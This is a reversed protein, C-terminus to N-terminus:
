VGIFEQATSLSYIEITLQTNPYEQSTLEFQHWFFQWSLGELLSLYNLLEFYKGTLTLEIGHRYLVAQKNTATDAAQNVDDNQNEFLVGQPALARFSVISIGPQQQLLDQLARRMEIPNILESTLALLRQDAAQMKREIVAIQNKLGGNLDQGLNSQIESVGQSLLLNDKNLQTINNSLSKIKESNSDFFVASFVLYMVVLGSVLILVKERPSLALYKDNLEQYHTM